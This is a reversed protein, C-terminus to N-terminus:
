EVVRSGYGFLEGSYLRAPPTPTVHVYIRRRKDPFCNIHKEDTSLQMTQKDLSRM